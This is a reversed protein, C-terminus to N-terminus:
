SASPPSTRALFSAHSTVKTRSASPRTTSSREVGSAAIASGVEAENRYAAATDIHRYGAELALRVSRETEAPPVLFVGFGLQPITVADRLEIEPISDTSM